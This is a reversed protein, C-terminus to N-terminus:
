TFYGDRANKHVDWWLEVKERQRMLDKSWGFMKNPDFLTWDDMDIGLVSAIRDVDERLIGNQFSIPVGGELEGQAIDDDIAAYHTVEPHSALWAEIEKSRRLVRQPTCWEEHLHSPDINNMLLLSRIANQGMRRWTSSIVLKAGSVRLLAEVWMAAIPDFQTVVHGTKRNGPLIYSRGPIMPGDFDLFIIKMDRRMPCFARVGHPTEIM